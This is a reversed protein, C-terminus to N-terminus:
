TWFTSDNEFVYVAFVLNESMQKTFSSSNQLRKMWWLCVSIQYRTYLGVFSVLNKVYSIHCKKCVNEKALYGLKYSAGTKKFSWYKSM